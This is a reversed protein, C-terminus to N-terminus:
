KRSSCTAPRLSQEPSACPLTQLLVQLVVHLDTNTLIGVIDDGVLIPLCSIGQGIMIAVARDLPTGPEVTVLDTSMLQTATIGALVSADPARAPGLCRLVDRDSIVGVLKQDADVVLLHRFGEAHFRRVLELASTDPSVCRPKATMVQGASLGCDAGARLVECLAASVQARKTDTCHM